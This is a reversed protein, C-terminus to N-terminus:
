PFKTENGEEEYVYERELIKFLVSKKITLNERRLRGKIADLTFFEGSVTSTSIGGGIEEAAKNIGLERKYANLISQRRELTQAMSLM